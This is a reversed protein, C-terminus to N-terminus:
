SNELQLSVGFTDKSVVDELDLRLTNIRDVGNGNNDDYDHEVAVTLPIACRDPANLVVLLYDM